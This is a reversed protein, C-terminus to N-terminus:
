ILGRLDATLDIWIAPRVGVENDDVRRGSTSLHDGLVAYSQYKGPTRLWWECFYSKVGKAVAYATPDPFRDIFGIYHSEMDNISLLFVRDTTPNGSSTGYDPNKDTQVTVAPIMAKEAASFATNFFSNNLWQRITSTEWTVDGYRTNYQVCDLVYASVVYIRDGQKQIVIWEIKEKGNSLNNDQEYKGFTIRDGVAANALKGVWSLSASKEAADKYTGLCDFIQYAQVFKGENMLSTAQDYLESKCALILDDSDKYGNLARFESIADKYKGENMLAVAADYQADTIADECAKIQAVSDKFGKLEKFATIALQYNGEDMLEIAIRYRCENILTVSDKYGNLQKLADIALNYRGKEMHYIAANYEGDLIATECEQIKAASNKYGDLAEFAAIAEEYKGDNMLAVADNYQMTPVIVENWLAFAGAIVCIASVAAIFIKIIKSNRARQAKEEAAHKAALADDYNKKDATLKETNLEALLVAKEASCKHCSVEDAHNVAGCACYWLDGCETTAYKADVGTNRNYQQKLDAGICDKLLVPDPFPEWKVGEACTWKSGDSFIATLCESEFSRATVDPLAIPTKAGFEEGRSANLDLYQFNEVGEIDVGSIDKASIKVVLAKITKSSINKYKLQALIKGTQNDKLLAGAEIIVPAGPCYLQGNQSFVRTYREAM